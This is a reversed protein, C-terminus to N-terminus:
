MAEILLRSWGEYQDVTDKLEDITLWQHDPTEDTVTLEISDAVDIITPIGIHVVGVADQLDIIVQEYTYHYGDLDLKVEEWLEKDLNYNLFKIVSEPTLMGDVLYDKLNNPLDAHGGLGISRKDQLKIEGAKGRSYSFYKDGKRIMAYVLVQPMQVSASDLHAKIHDVRKRNLFHYDQGDVLALDFPFVGSTNQPVDQDTLASREICLVMPRIKPPKDAKPTTVTTM